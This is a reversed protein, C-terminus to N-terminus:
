AMVAVREGWCFGIGAFRVTVNKWNYLHQRETDIEQILQDKYDLDDLLSFLKKIIM